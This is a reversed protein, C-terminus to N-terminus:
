EWKGMAKARMAEPIKEVDPVKFVGSAVLVIEGGCVLDCSCFCFNITRRAIRATGELWQGLRRAACSSPASRCRRIRGASAPPM